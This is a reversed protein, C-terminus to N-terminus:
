RQFRIQSTAHLLRGLPKMLQDRRMRAICLDLRCEWQANPNLYTPAFELYRHPMHGHYNLSLHHQRHIREVLSRQPRVSFPVKDMEHHFSGKM